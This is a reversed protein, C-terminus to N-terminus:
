REVLTGALEQVLMGPRFGLSPRQTSTAGLGVMPVSYLKTRYGM